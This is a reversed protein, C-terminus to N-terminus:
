LNVSSNMQYPFIERPAILSKQMAFNIKLVLTWLFSLKDMKKAAAKMSDEFLSSSEYQELTCFM